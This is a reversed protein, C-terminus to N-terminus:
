RAPKTNSPAGQLPALEQLAQYILQAYLRQGSPQPHVQDGALMEPHNAIAQDWAAVKVRKPYKGAMSYMTQNSETIWQQSPQGHGTVFVVKTDTPLMQLLAEADAGRFASNTALSFVLYPRLTGAALMSEVIHLGAASSRSVEGDISAGPLLEALSPAAALTVSDGIIDVQDGTVPVPTLM